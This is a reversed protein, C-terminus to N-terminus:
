LPTGDKKWKTIRGVPNLKIFVLGENRPSKNIWYNEDMELLLPVDSPLISSSKIIGRFNKVM